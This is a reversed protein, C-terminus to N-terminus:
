VPAIGYKAWYFGLKIVETFVAVLSFENQWWHSPDYLPDPAVSVLIRTGPSFTRLTRDARRTHFADTVVIVTQWRHEQVLHRLNLAEEYTSQAEDAILIAQQPLGMKVAASESLQASSCAVGAGVMTGGSFVVLPAYGAQFLSIAHGTRHFDGGEGGLVLIADAQKPADNVVLIHGIELTFGALTLAMLLLSAAGLLM